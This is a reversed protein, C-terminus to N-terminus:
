VVRMVKKEPGAPARRRDNAPQYAVRAHPQCYPGGVGPSKAGCYRFEPTMPDGLPWKCMSERLEMITVRESMPIVVSELKPEARMAAAMMPALDFDVALATNGRSMPMSSRQPAGGGGHPARAVHPEEKARPRTPLTSTPKARGSLGMRHVKGIVANRTIANGLQSAIKSASLGDLWLKKLIEIREDTWSM